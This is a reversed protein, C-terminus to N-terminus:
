VGGGTAKAMAELARVTDPHHELTDSNPDVLKNNPDLLVAMGMVVRMLSAGRTLQILYECVRRCNEDDNLYFSEQEGDDHQKAIEEPMTAGWNSSIADLAHALVFAMSIDAKSAKAMKM